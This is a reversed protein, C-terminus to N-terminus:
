TANYYQMDNVSEKLSFQRSWCWGVSSEATIAFDQMQRDLIPAALRVTGPRPCTALTVSASFESTCQLKSKLLVWVHSSAVIISLLPRLSPLWELRGKLAGLPVHVPSRLWLGGPHGEAGWVWLLGEGM